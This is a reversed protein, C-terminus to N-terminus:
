NGPGSDDPEDSDSTSSEDAHPDIAEDPQGTADAPVQSLPAGSAAAGERRRRNRRGGRRTRRRLPGVERRVQDLIQEFQELGATVDPETVWADPNLREALTRLAEQRVPDSVQSAIRAGVEAYRARLRLLGESGLVRAAASLETAHAPEAVFGVEAEVREEVESVLDGAIAGEDPDAPSTSAELEQDDIPSPTPPELQEADSAPPVVVLAPPAPPGDRRAGRERGTRRVRRREEVPPDPEPPRAELIRSWDFSVDPYADEIARIADEDIAARGVKVQPPSRFWYLVRGHERGRRRVTDVLFTNEYGRRDRTFRLHPL